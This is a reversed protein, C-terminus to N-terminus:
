ACNYGNEFDLFKVVISSLSNALLSVQSKLSDGSPGSEIFSCTNQTKHKRSSVHQHPM